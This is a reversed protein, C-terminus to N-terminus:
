KLMMLQKTGKLKLGEDIDQVRRIGYELAFNLLITIFCGRKRAM